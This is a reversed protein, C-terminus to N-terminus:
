AAAPAHAAAANAVTFGGGGVAIALAVAAATLGSAALAAWLQAFTSTGVPQAAAATTTAALTALLAPAQVATAAAM